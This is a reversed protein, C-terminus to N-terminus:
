ISFFMRECRILFCLFKALLRMICHVRCRVSAKRKDLYMGSGIDKERVGDKM